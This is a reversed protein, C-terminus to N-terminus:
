VRGRRRVGVGLGMLMVAGVGPGPVEYEIMLWPRTAADANERSNFRKATPVSSEDGLIVWGFNGEPRALMDAVDAMMQNTAPWVYAGVGGVLKSTSEAAAFDGGPTTWRVGPYMRHLWTADGIEAPAGAGEMQPADSAGEGWSALVRHFSVAYPSSGGRSMTLGVTAGTITAGAPVSGAVDFRILGRRLFPELTAGAFVFEGAGNSISGAADEYLTNDAAAGITVSDARVEPACVVLVVLAAIWRM